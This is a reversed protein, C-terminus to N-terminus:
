SSPHTTMRQQLMTNFASKINDMFPKQYVIPKDAVIRMCTNVEFILMEGKANIYCDVGIFDLPIAKHIAECQQALAPHPKSLYALEEEKYKEDSEMLEARTESHINWSKSIILHRPYFKGDIIVMRYKRYLGDDSQFDVFEIAYFDRSDFAFQELKELDNENQVLAMGDGGHEGTSRFIYPYDLGKEQLMVPVDSLRLPTIRVCKPVHLGKIDALYEYTKERTTKLVDEPKNIVPLDSNKFVSIAHHMAKTNTDADCISNLIVDGEPLLINKPELGGFTVAILQSLEKDTLLDLTNNGELILSLQNANGNNRIVLLRNRDPAGLAYIIKHM